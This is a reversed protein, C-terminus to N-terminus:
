NRNLCTKSSELTDCIIIKYAGELVVWECIFSDYYCFKNEVFTENFMMSRPINSVQLQLLYIHCFIGDFDVVLQM